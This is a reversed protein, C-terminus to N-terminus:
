SEDIADNIVGGKKYRIFEVILEDKFHQVIQPIDRENIEEGFEDVTDYVFEQVWMKLDETM